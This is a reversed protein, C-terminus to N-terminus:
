RKCQWFSSLPRPLLQFCEMWVGEGAGLHFRTQSCFLLPGLSSFSQPNPSPTMFLPPPSIWPQKLLLQLSHREWVKGLWLVGNKWYQAFLLCSVSINDFCFFNFLTVAKSHSTEELFHYGLLTVVGRGMSFTFFTRPFVELVLLM